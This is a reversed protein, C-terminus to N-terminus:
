ALRVGVATTIMCKSARIACEFLMRLKSKNSRVEATEGIMKAIAVVEIGNGIITNNVM